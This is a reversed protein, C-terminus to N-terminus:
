DNDHMLAGAAGAVRDFVAKLSGPPNCVLPVAIELVAARAPDSLYEVPSKGRVRCVMLAPLLAAARVKLDTPDEWTVGDRYAVWLEAAAGTLAGARAPLHIAKLMLHNLCFALDFAPDGMTACEADLFVPTASRFLINKPSVDGHILCVNAKRLAGALARLETAVQPVLGATFGLYPEIRIADFLAMNDFGTRDFLPASSAAHLRSLAAGVRGGEGDTGQGTLLRDKWNYVEPGSIMEMAFGGLADSRGLVAPVCTPDVSAAFELWAFETRNRSVPVRWDQRVRLKELAFKTCVQRDDLDVVCIDSSVGGTLSRVSRIQHPAAVGLAVLLRVAPEDISM